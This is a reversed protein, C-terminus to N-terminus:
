QLSAGGYRQGSTLHNFYGWWRSREFRSGFINYLLRDLTKNRHMVLGLFPRVLSAIVVSMIIDVALATVVLSTTILLIALSAFLALFYIESGVLGHFLDFVM